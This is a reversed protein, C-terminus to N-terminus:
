NEEKGYASKAAEIAIEVEREENVATSEQKLFFKCVLLQTARIISLGFGIVTFSYIFYFPIRTMPTLQPKPPILTMNVWKISLVFLWCFTFITLIQMLIKIPTGIKKPFQAVILEVAVHADKRCAIGLGLYISFVMLYRAIEESTPFPIGMYRYIIGLSVVLCMIFMAFASSLEEFRFLVKDLM